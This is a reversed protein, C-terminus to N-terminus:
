MTSCLITLSWIPFSIKLFWDFPLDTSSLSHPVILHFLFCLLFVPLLVFTLFTRLVFFILFTLFNRVCIIFLSLPLLIPFLIQLFGFTSFRSLPLAFYLVFALYSLCDWYYISSFSLPNVKFFIRFPLFCFPNSSCGSPLYFIFVSLTFYFIFHRVCLFQRICYLSPFSLISATSPISLFNKLCIQYYYKLFNISCSGM